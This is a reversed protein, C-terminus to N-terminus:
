HKSDLPWLHQRLSPTTLLRDVFYGIAIAQIPLSVLLFRHELFLLIFTASMALYFLTPVYNKDKALLYFGAMSLLFWFIRLYYAALSLPALYYGGFYKPNGAGWFWLVAKKAFVTPLHFPHDICYQWLIPLVKNIDNELGLEQTYTQLHRSYAGQSYPNNGQIIITALNSTTAVTSQNEKTLTKYGFSSIVFIIFPLICIFLNQSSFLSSLKHNMLVPMIFLVILLIPAWSRFLSMVFLFFGLSISLIIISLGFKSLETIRHVLWLFIPLLLMFCHDNLFQSASAIYQSHLNFVLLTMVGVLPGGYYRKVVRYLITLSFISLAILSIQASLIKVGFVKYFIGLYYSLGPSFYSGPLIDEQAFAVASNHYYLPDDGVALIDPRVYLSICRQIISLGILVYAVVNSNTPQKLWQYAISLQSRRFWVVAFVAIFAVAMFVRRGVYYDSKPIKLTVALVLLLISLLFSLQVDNSLRNLLWFTLWVIGISLGFCLPMWATAMYVWPLPPPYWSSAAEFLSMPMSQNLWRQVQDIWLLHLSISVLIVLAILSHQKLFSKTSNNSVSDNM